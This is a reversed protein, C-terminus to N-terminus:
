VRSPGPNERWGHQASWVTGPSRTGSGGPDTWSSETGGPPDQSDQHIWKWGRGAQNEQRRGAATPAPRSRAAEKAERVALPGVVGAPLDM